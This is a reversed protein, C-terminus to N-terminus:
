LTTLAPALIRWVDRTMAMMGGASLVQVCVSDAGADRHAKV